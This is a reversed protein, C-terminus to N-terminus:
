PLCSSSSEWWDSLSSTIISMISEVQFDQKRAMIIIIVFTYYGNFVYGLVDWGKNCHWPPEGSTLAGKKEFIHFVHGKESLCLFFM